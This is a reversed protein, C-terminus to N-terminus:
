GNRAHRRNRWQALWALGTATKESPVYEASAWGAYEGGELVDLLSDFRVSGTGPEHRGPADAFQVHKVVALRDRLEAAADLGMRTVHYADFQMSVRQQSRDLVTQADDLTGVLYNPVDIRNLAEVLVAVGHPELAQAALLLNETYVELCNEFGDCSEALGALVHVYRVGLAQAYEVVQPLQSRFRERMEPRGALGFPYQPMQPTNILIVPLPEARAARALEDASHAYPYQMEVGEFGAVAAAHFRELVPIERFLLSINAAIRVMM